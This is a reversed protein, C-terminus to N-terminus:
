IRAQRRGSDGRQIEITFLRLQRDQLARMREELEAQSIRGELKEMLARICVPVIKPRSYLSVAMAM